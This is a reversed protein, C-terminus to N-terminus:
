TVKTLETTTTINAIDPQDRALEDAIDKPVTTNSDTFTQEDVVRWTNTKTDYVKTTYTTTTVNTVDEIVEPIHENFNNNKYVKEDVVKWTGSRKDFLKRKYLTTYKGDNDKSVYRILSPRKSKITKEDVEHWTKTKEDYLHQSVKKDSTKTISTTNTRNTKDITTSKERATKKDTTLKTDSIVSKDTQKTSDVNSSRIPSHRKIDHTTPKHTTTHHRNTENVNSEDVVTWTNTKNDFVKTTYTTSKTDVSDSKGTTTFDNTAMPSSSSSSPLDKSGMLLTTTAFRDSSRNSDFLTSHTTTAADANSSTLPKMTNSDVNLRATGIDYKTHMTDSIRSAKSELQRNNDTIYEDTIYKKTKDDFRTTEYKGRVLEVPANDGTQEIHRRTDRYNRDYIPEKDRQDTSFQVNEEAVKQDYEVATTIDTGFKAKYKEQSSKSQMLGSEKFTDSVIREKGDVIEIVQNSTTAKETRSSLSFNQSYQETAYSNLNDDSAKVLSSSTITSDQVDAKASRSPMTSIPYRDSPGAHDSSTKTTSKNVDFLSKNSLIQSEINSMNSASSSKVQDVTEKDTTLYAKKAICRESELLLDSANAHDTADTGFKSDLKTVTKDTKFKSHDSQKNLQENILKSSSSSSSTRQNTATEHSGGDEVAIFEEKTTTTTVTSTGPAISTEEKSWSSLVTREPVGEYVFKGNWTSQNKERAIQESGMTTGVEMIQTGGYIYHEKPKHSQQQAHEPQTVVYQTQMGRISGDDISGINTNVESIIVSSQQQGDTSSQSVFEESTTTTTTTTTTQQNSTSSAASQKMSFYFFFFVFYFSYRESISVSACKEFTLEILNLLNTQLPILLISFIHVQTQHTQGSRLPPRSAVSATKATTKDKKSAGM